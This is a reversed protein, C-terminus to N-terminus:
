RLFNKFFIILVWVFMVTTLVSDFRDLFGGHGPLVTGADKVGSLRKLKSLFLGGMFALTTQCLCFLTFFFWGKVPGLLYWLNTYCSFPAVTIKPLVLLNIIMIGGLSGIFGEWSKGPSITPCMKTRGITKGVIYGSTDAAWAVFFPYL